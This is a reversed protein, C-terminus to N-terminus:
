VNRRTEELSKSDGSRRHMLKLLYRAGGRYSRDKALGELLDQDETNLFYMLSGLLDDPLGDSCEIVLNCAESIAYQRGDVRVFPGDLATWNPYLQVAGYFANRLHRSIPESDNM